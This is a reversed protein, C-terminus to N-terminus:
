RETYLVLNRSQTMMGDGGIRQSREPCCSYVLSDVNSAAVDSSRVFSGGSFVRRVRVDESLDGGLRAVISTALVIAVTLQYMLLLHSILSVSLETYSVSKSSHLVDWDSSARHVYTHSLFESSYVSICMSVSFRM